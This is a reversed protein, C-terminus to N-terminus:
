IEDMERSPWYPGILKLQQSQPIIEFSVEMQETQKENIALCANFQVVEFELEIKGTTFSSFFPKKVLKVNEAIAGQKRFYYSLFIGLDKKRSNLFTDLHNETQSKPIFDFTWSEQM